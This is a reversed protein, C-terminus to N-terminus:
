RSHRDTPLPQHRQLPDSHRRGVPHVPRAHPPAAPSRDSGDRMNALAHACTSTTPTSARAPASWRIPRANGSRASTRGSTSTTSCRRRRAPRDGRGRARPRPADLEARDAHDRRAHTLEDQLRGPWRGQWSGEWLGRGIGGAPSLTFSDSTSTTTPSGRRWRSRPPSRSCAGAAAAIRAATASRRAGPAARRDAFFFPLLVFAPRVLTTAASAARRRARLRAHRGAQAARLCSWCRRPPVFTTWVETLSWRASTPCRRLLAGDHLAAVSAATRDDPSAGARLSSCWCASRRSCSRRRSRSPM